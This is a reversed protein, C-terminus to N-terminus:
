DVIVYPLEVMRWGSRQDADRREGMRSHQYVSV